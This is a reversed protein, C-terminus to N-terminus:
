PHNIMKILSSTKQNSYMKEDLKRVWSIGHIANTLFVEDASKLKDMTIEKETVLM